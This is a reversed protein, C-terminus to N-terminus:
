RRGGVFSLIPLEEDIMGEVRIEVFVTQGALIRLFDRDFPILQQLVPALEV